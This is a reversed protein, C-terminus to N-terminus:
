ARRYVTQHKGNETESEKTTESDLLFSRTKRFEQLLRAEENGSLFQYVADRLAPTDDFIAWRTGSQDEIPNPSPRFNRFRLFCIIDIDKSKFTM